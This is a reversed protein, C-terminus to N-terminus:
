ERKRIQRRHRAPPSPLEAMATQIEASARGISEAVARVEPALPADLLQAVGRAIEAAPAHLAAVRRVLQEHELLRERAKQLIPRTDAEGTLRELVLVQRDQVTMAEATILIEQRGVVVVFPGSSARGAPGDHWAARAQVLFHDLFPMAGDIRGPASPLVTDFAQALWDPPSSTMYFAGDRRREIVAVDLQRLLASFLADDSM